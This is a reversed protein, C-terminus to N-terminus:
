KEDILKMIRKMNACFLTIAGQLTMSEISASWSKDYGHENKLESNKAEIKYRMKVENQFYDTEQFRKHDDHEKSKITVSYTKTKAGIKYCTEQLPCRQCKNVDFYYTMSQNKAQNKKGTRAKRIAMHGAPCVFMGADKNYDWSDKPLRSGNAIIPNLRSILKLENKEAFQLNRKGSYARDGIIEHIDMGNENSQQVLPELFQGDGKEGGTILAATILRDQSIALHTKYGFFSTDKSKHGVKADKDKSYLKSDNIDDQLEELNHLSESVSSRVTLEPHAKVKSILESVYIQENKLENITNKEPLEQKIKTNVEYLHKRLKKSANRLTEVPSKQNYKSVTHTADVIITKKNLVDNEIAIKLTKQILKNLLEVDKLRQRRFKTLLSAHIVEDEPNLGLFFKLAMDTKAREVLDRDSLAYRVKLYLYKFMQVPDIAKRGEDLSYKSSLEEYVFSFDVLQILRRLEHDKPILIDYLNSYESLKIESQQELMDM